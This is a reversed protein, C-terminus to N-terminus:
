LVRSWGKTSNAARTYVRGQERYRYSVHQWDGSQPNFVEVITVLRGVSTRWREGVSFRNVESM